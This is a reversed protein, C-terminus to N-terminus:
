HRGEGPSPMPGLPGEDIRKALREMDDALRNTEARVVSYHGDPDPHIGAHRVRKDVSSLQGRIEKAMERLRGEFTRMQSM